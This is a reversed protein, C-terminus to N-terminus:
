CIGRNRRDCLTAPLQIVQVDVTIVAIAAGVQAPRPQVPQPVMGPESAEFDDQHGRRVPQRGVNLRFPARHCSPALRTLAERLTPSRPRKLHSTEDAGEHDPGAM